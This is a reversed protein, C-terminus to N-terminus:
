QLPCVARSELARLRRHLSVPPTLAQANPYHFVSKRIVPRIQKGPPESTNQNTNLKTKNNMLQYNKLGLAVSDSLIFVAIQKWNNWPKLRGTPEISLFKRLLQTQHRSTCESSRLQLHNRIPRNQNEICFKIYKALAEKM